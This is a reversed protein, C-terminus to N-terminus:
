RSGVLNNGSHEISAGIPLNLIYQAIKKAEVGSIDQKPMPMNGWVGMGGLQIRNTLIILADGNDKYRMAVGRWAPGVIKKDIAHCNTCHKHKALEPMDVAFAISTMCILSLSLFTKKM